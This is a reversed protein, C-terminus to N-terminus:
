GALIEVLWERPVRRHDWDASRILWARLDARRIIWRTKTPDTAANVKKAPLGKHSIWRQVVGADVGMCLALDSASWADPDTRDIGIQLLRQGIAAATRQYGRARFIRAISDPRRTAHEELLADEEPLWLGGSRSLPKCGLDAARSRIWDPTRDIRQALDRLAGKPQPARYFRRIAADILETSERRPGKAQRRLGLARAERHIAGITRDPLLAHCGRAGEALYRERIVQRERATWLRGAGMRTAERPTRVPTDITPVIRTHGPIAPIGARPATTAPAALLPKTM